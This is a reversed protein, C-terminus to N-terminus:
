QMAVRVISLLPLREKLREREGRQKREIGGTERARNTVYLLVHILTNTTVNLSRRRSHVQALSIIASNSDNVVAKILHIHARTRMM